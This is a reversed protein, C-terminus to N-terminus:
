KGDVVEAKKILQGNMDYYEITGQYLKLGKFEGKEITFPIWIDEIGSSAPFESHYQITQLIPSTKQKLEANEYVLVTHYNRRELYTITDNHYIVQPTEINVL